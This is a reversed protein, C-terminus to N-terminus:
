VRAGTAGTVDGCSAGVISPVHGTAAPTATPPDVAAIECVAPFTVWKYNGAAIEWTSPNGKVNTEVVYGKTYSLRYTLKVSFTLLVDGDTLQYTGVGGVSDSVVAITETFGRSKNVTVFQRLNPLAWAHGKAAFDGLALGKALVGTAGYAQLATAMAAPVDSPTFALGTTTPPVAAGDATAFSGFGTTMLPDFILKWPATASPQTFVLLTVAGKPWRFDAPTAPDYTFHALAAFTAPEATGAPISWAFGDVDYWDYTPLGEVNKWGARRDFTYQASETALATGTEHEGLVTANLTANAANNLTNDHALVAPAQAETLRPTALASAGSAAATAVTAVVAVFLM